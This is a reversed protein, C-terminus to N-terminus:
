QMFFIDVRKGLATWVEVHKQDQSGQRRWKAHVVEVSHVCKLGFEQLVSKAPGWDIDAGTVLMPHIIIDIDKKSFGKKLVSGGLAITFGVAELSQYLSRVFRVGEELNWSRM